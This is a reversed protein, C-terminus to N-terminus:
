RLKGGAEGAMDGTAPAADGETYAWAEPPDRAM